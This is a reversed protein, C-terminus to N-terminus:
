CARSTHTAIYTPYQVELQVHGIYSPQRTQMHLEVMTATGTPHIAAKDAHTTLGNYSDQYSSHSGQRCTYNFWQLQGLLIFPQRTLWLKYKDEGHSYVTHLSVQTWKLLGVMLYSVLMSCKKQM